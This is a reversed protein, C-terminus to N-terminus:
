KYEDQALLFHAGRNWLWELEGRSIPYSASILRDL